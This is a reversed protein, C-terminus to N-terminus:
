SSGHLAAARDAEGDAQIEAARTDMFEVVDSLRFRRQNGKTRFHRLIGKNTYRRVTTSCVGLIVATEELSLTPDVLREILEQRSEGTRGRGAEAEKEGRIQALLDWNPSAKIRSATTAPAIAGGKAGMEALERSEAEEEPQCLDPMEGWRVVSLEFTPAQLDPVRFDPIAPLEDHVTLDEFRHQAPSNADANVAGAFLESLDPVSRIPAAAPTEEPEVPDLWPRWGIVPELHEDDRNAPRSVQDVYRYWEALSRM